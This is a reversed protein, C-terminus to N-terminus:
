LFKLHRKSGQPESYSLLDLDSRNSLIHTSLHVHVVQSIQVQLEVRGKNENQRCKDNPIKIKGTHCRRELRCARQAAAHSRVESSSLLSESIVEDRSPHPLVHPPESFLGSSAKIIPLLAPERWFESYDKVSTVQLWERFSSQDKGPLFGGPLLICDTKFM